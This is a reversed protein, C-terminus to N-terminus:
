KFLDDISIEDNDDATKQPPSDFLINDVDITKFKIIENLQKIDKEASIYLKAAPYFLMKKSLLEAKEFCNSINMLYKKANLDNKLLKNQLLKKIQKENEDCIPKYSITRYNRCISILKELNPKIEVFPFKNDTAFKIIENLLTIVPKSEKNTDIKYDDLINKLLNINVSKQANFIKLFNEVSEIKHIDTQKLSNSLLELKNISDTKIDEISFLQNLLEIEVKTNDLIKYFNNTLSYLNKISKELKINALQCYKKVTDFNNNNLYNNAQRLYEKATKFDSKSVDFKELNANDDAFKNINDIENKRLEKIERSDLSKEYNTELKKLDAQVSYLNLKKIDDKIKDIKKSFTDSTDLNSVTEYFDDAEKSVSILLKSFSNSYNHFVSKVFNLQDYANLIEDANLILKASIIKNTLSIWEVKLSDPVSKFKNAISLFYNLNQKNDDILLNIESDFKNFLKNFKSQNEPDFQFNESKMFDFKSKANNLNDFSFKKNLINEIPILYKKNYHSQEAKNRVIKASFISFAVVIIPCFIMLAVGCRVFFRRIYLNRILESLEILEDNGPNDIKAKDVIIKANNLKKEYIRARADAITIRIQRIKNVIQEDINKVTNKIYDVSNKAKELNPNVALAANFCEYAQVTKSLKLFNEGKIILSDAAQKIAEKPCVNIQEHIERDFVRSEEIEQETTSSAVETKMTEVARSFSASMAMAELMLKAIEYNDPEFQFLRKFIQAAKQFQGTQFNNKGKVLLEVTELKDINKKNSDFEILSDNSISNLFAIIEAGSKFRAGPSYATCKEIFQIIKKPFRKKDFKSWQVKEFSKDNRARSEQQERNFPFVGKLMKYALIGLAHIDSSETLEEGRVQEPPMYFLKGVRAGLQTVVMEGKMTSVGFDFLKLGYDDRIKVNDAAIDRHIIHKQHIFNLADALKICADVVEVLSFTRELLIQRVTAGAVVEMVIYLFGADDIEDIFQVIFPHSTNKMIKIERKFRKVADPSALFDPRLMKIAVQKISPDSCNALFVRSMGGRPFEDVLTYNKINKNYFPDNKFSPTIM